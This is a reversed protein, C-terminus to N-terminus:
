ESKTTDIKLHSIDREPTAECVCEGAETKYFTKGVEYLHKHMKEEREKFFQTFWAYTSLECEYIHRSEREIDEPFVNADEMAPLYKITKALESLHAYKRIVELCLNKLEWQTQGIEHLVFQAKHCDKETIQYKPITDNM